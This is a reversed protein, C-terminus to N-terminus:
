RAMKMRTIRNDCIDDSCRMANLEAAAIALDREHLEAFHAASFRRQYHSKVLDADIGSQFLKPKLANLSAHFWRWNFSPDGEPELQRQVAQRTQPEYGLSKLTDTDLSTSISSENGTRQIASLQIYFQGNSAPTSSIVGTVKCGFLKELRAIPGTTQTRYDALQQEVEAQSLYKPPLSSKLNGIMLPM